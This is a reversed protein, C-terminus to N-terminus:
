STRIRWHGSDSLYVDASRLPLVESQSPAAARPRAFFSIVGASIALLSVILGWFAPSPLILFFLTGLLGTIVSLLPVLSSRRLIGVMVAISGALVVFGLVILM